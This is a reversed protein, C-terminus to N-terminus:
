CSQYGERTPTVSVVSRVAGMRQDTAVTTVEIRLGIQRATEVLNELELKLYRAGSSENLEKWRAAQSELSPLDASM